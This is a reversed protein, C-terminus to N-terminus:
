EHKQKRKPNAVRKPAYNTLLTEGGGRTFQHAKKQYQETKAKEIKFKM